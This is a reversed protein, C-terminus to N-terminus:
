FAKEPDKARWSITSLIEEKSYGFEKEVINYFDDLTIDGETPDFSMNKLKSPTKEYPKHYEPSLEILEDRTYWKGKWYIRKINDPKVRGLLLAQPEGSSLLSDSLYPRFSNPYRSRWLENPDSKGSAIRKEATVGSWDTGYLQSAQSEIEIVVKGFRLATVLDTTVFIGSHKPGGYSRTKQRTADIGFIMELDTEHTGHYVTLVDDSRLNLIKEKQSIEELLLIERIVSRFM